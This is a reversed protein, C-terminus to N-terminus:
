LIALEVTDPMILAQMHDKCIEVALQL